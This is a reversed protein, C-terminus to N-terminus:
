SSTLWAQRTQELQAIHDCYPTSTLSVNKSLLFSNCICKRFNLNSNLDSIPLSIGM